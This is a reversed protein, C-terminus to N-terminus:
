IENKFEDKEKKNIFDNIADDENDFSKIKQFYPHFVFYTDNQKAIFSSSSKNPFIEYKFCVNYIEDKIKIPPFEKKELVEDKLSYVKINKFLNLDIDNKCNANQNNSYLLIKSCKDYVILTRCSTKLIISKIDTELKFNINKLAIYAPLLMTISWIIYVWTKPLQILETTAGWIGWFITVGIAYILWRKM